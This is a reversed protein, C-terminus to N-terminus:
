FRLSFFCRIIQSQMNKENEIAVLMEQFTLLFLNLTKGILKLQNIM